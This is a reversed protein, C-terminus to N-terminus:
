RKKIPKDTKDEEKKKPTEKEEKKNYFGFLAFFPNSNDKVEKKEEKKDKEELFFNIEEQLQKLSDDTAGDILKLVDDLDSKDLEKNLKNLEEENLAYAKFKVDAKGGFTFHAQQSVRQPIRRFTFEVLICSYYKRLKKIFNDKAFEKPLLGELASDKVNLERKGILALELLM